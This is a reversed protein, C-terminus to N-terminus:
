AYKRQYNHRAKNNDKATTFTTQIDDTESEKAYSNRCGVEKTAKSVHGYLYHIGFRFLLFYPCSQDSEKSEELLQFSQVLKQQL